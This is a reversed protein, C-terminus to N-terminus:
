DRSLTIGDYCDLMALTDGINIASFLTQECLFKEYLEETATKYAEAKTKSRVLSLRNCKPEPQYMWRKYSFPQLKLALKENIDM